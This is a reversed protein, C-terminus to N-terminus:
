KTRLLDLGPPQRQSIDLPTEAPWVPNPCTPRPPCSSRAIRLDDTGDVHWYGTGGVTVLPCSRDGRGQPSAQGMLDKTTTIKTRGFQRHPNSERRGSWRKRGLDAVQDGFRPRERRLRRQNLRLGIRTPFLDRFPLVDKRPDQLAAVVHVGVARGQSLLLGLSEKIRDRVKRDTIYATLAALE